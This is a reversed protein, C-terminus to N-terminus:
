TKTDGEEGLSVEINQTRRARLKEMYAVKGILKDQINM